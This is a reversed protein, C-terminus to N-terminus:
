TTAMTTSSIMPPSIASYAGIPDDPPSMVGAVPAASGTSSAGIMGVVSGGVVVRWYDFSWPIWAGELYAGHHYFELGVSPQIREMLYGGGFDWTRDGVEDFLQLPHM